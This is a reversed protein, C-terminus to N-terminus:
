PSPRLAAGCKGCFAVQEEPRAGGKPCKLAAPTGWKGCFNDGKLLATGRKTCFQTVEGSLGQAQLEYCDRCTYEVVGDIEAEIYAPKARGCVVCAKGRRRISADVIKIEAKPPPAPSATPSPPAIDDADEDPYM